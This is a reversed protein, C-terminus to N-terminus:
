VSTLHTDQHVYNKSRKEELHFDSVAIVMRRSLLLKNYLYSGAKDGKFVYDYFAINIDKYEYYALFEKFSFPYINIIKGQTSIYNKLM